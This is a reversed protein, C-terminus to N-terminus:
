STESLYQTSCYDGKATKAWGSSVSKVRVTANSSLVRTVACKTGPGKRCNLGSKATVRYLTEGEKAKAAASGGAKSGKTLNIAVHHQENLLIDGPLLYDQSNRYKADTLVEFGAAKLASRMNGTWLDISVGKLKADKQRYGVAKVVAATSSSCDAECAVKINAPLYDTAAKLQKWFTTRQSQDYGVKDNEAAQRALKAIDSRVKGDPHRLVCDWPRNYWARVCYETGTQDGAKGGSYGGKEDHGCNSISM